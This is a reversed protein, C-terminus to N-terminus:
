ANTFDKRAFTSWGYADPLTRDDFQATVFRDTDNLSVVLATKGHLRKRVGVYRMHTWGGKLAKPPTRDSTHRKFLKPLYYTM